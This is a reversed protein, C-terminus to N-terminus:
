YFFAHTQRFLIAARESLLCRPGSTDGCANLSESADYLCSSLDERAVAAFNFTQIIGVDEM